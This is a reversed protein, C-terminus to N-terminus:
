LILTTISIFYLEVFLEDVEDLTSYTRTIYNTMEDTQINGYHEEIFKVSCGVVKSLTFVDVNGFQLRYTAFIHRLLM